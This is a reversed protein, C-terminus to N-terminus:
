PTPILAQVQNSYGSEAGNGDVATTVYYYTTGAQVSNDTYATTANLASNIKSYPGSSISARYVNYGVVASTSPGWSLDVSHQLITEGTGTAVATISPTSANSAFSINASATGSTQPAFTVAFPMSQGAAVTVPLTLGSISFESSSSSGSSVTVSSGSASLMGTQKQSTGVAITGFSMSGPSVTLQGPSAGSGSLSVTLNADSADSAFTIAGSASGSLTPAFVISLTLSQGATLTESGSFGQLGFGTGTVTAQSITVTSGGSNTLTMYKTQNSGVQMSAFNVSAPNAALYGPTVAAASSTGTGSLTITTNSSRQKGSNGIAIFTAVSVNGSAGSSAQPAFTISLTASQQSALTIPLSPGAFSFGAGSVTAQSITLTSKGSNSLTVSSTRSSGMQVSGFNVNSSSLALQGTASCSFLLFRLFVLTWWAHRWQLVLRMMGDVRKGRARLARRPHHLSQWERASGEFVTLCNLPAAIVNKGQELRRSLDRFGLCRQKRRLTTITRSSVLSLHASTVEYTLVSIKRIESQVQHRLPKQHFLSQEV